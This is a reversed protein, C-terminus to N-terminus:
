KWGDWVNDPDVEYFGAIAHALRIGFSQGGYVDYFGRCVMNDTEHDLTDLSKHCKIWSDNRLADDVMNELRGEQLDMLNGPRFVCTDCKRCALRLKGTAADTINGM